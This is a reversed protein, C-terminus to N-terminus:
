TASALAAAVHAPVWCPFDGATPKLYGIPTYRGPVPTWAHRTGLAEYREFVMWLGDSWRQPVWQWERQCWLFRTAHPTEDTGSYVVSDRRHTRSRVFM